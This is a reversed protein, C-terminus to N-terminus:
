SKRGTELAGIVVDVAEALKEARDAMFSAFKGDGRYARAVDRDAEARDRLLAIAEETTM